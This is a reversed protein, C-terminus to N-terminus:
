YLIQNKEFYVKLRMKERRQQLHLRGLTAAGWLGAATLVYLFPAVVFMDLRIPAVVTRSWANMRWEYLAYAVWAVGCTLVLAAPGYQEKRRALFPYLGAMAFFVAPLLALWPHDVFVVFPALFVGFVGQTMIATQEKPEADDSEKGDPINRPREEERTKLIGEAIRSAL